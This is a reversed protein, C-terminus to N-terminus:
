GAAALPIRAPENELTGLTVAAISPALRDYNGASAVTAQADDTVLLAADLRCQRAITEAFGAQQANSLSGLDILVLDYHYRLVGATVSSHISDLHGAARLGGRVLPLLAISDKLSGVVAEALSSDGSLVQEWGLDVELGLHTALGPARFNGDVIAVSKGAAALSRAVCLLMTTCGVGENTGAIGVVTRGEDTAKYLAEHLQKWYPAGVATLENCVDSWAFADVELGPQFKAEVTTPAPTFASLPKREIPATPTESLPLSAPFPISPQRDPPLEAQETVPLFPRTFAQGLPETDHVAGPLRDLSAPPPDNRDDYARIFAQDVNNM